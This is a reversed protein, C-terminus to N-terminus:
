IAGLLAAYRERTPIRPATRWRVQSKGAMFMSFAVCTLRETECRLAFRCGPSEDILNLEAAHRPACAADARPDYDEKCTALSRRLWHAVAQFRHKASALDGDTASGDNGPLKGV